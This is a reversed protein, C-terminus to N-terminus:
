GDIPHSEGASQDAVQASGVDLSQPETTLPSSHVEFRSSDGARTWVEIEGAVMAVRLGARLWITLQQVVVMLLIAGWTAAPVVETYAVYAAFVIATPTAILLWVGITAKLHTVVFRVAGLFARITRRSDDQAMRIRAYDLALTAFLALLALALLWAAQGLYWAPEWDVEELVRGIPGFAAFVIAAALAFVVVALVGARLFRGFFHGAGRFFRHLFPRADDSTLVEITGGAVLAQGALALLGVAWFMSVLTTLSRDNRVLEGFVSFSFRTLLVDAEPALATAGHWWTWVPLVLTSAFAVNWLWSLSALGPRRSAQRLGARACTIVM